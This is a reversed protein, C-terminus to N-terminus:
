RAVAAAAAPRRDSRQEPPVYVLGLARFVDEEEPTPVPTAPHAPDGDYPPPLRWLWGDRFFLGRPLWGGQSRKLVLQRNFEAPGTRLLLIVGWQERTTSFLDLPFGRYLLRKYRRGLASRGNVDLRPAFVGRGLLERCRADVLDIPRTGGFLDVVEEGVKPVCVIEVDGVDSKGRRISGAVAIREACRELLQLVEGALLDGRALPIRTKDGM